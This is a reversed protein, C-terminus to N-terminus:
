LLGLQTNMSQLLGRRYTYSSFSQDFVDPNIFVPSVVRTLPHLDLGTAKCFLHPTLAHTQPRSFVPLSQMRNPPGRHSESTFTSYSSILQVLDITQCMMESKVDSHRLLVEFHVLM